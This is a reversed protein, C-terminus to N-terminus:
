LQRRPCMGSCSGTSIPRSTHLADYGKPLALLTNTWYLAASGTCRAWTPSAHQVPDITIKICRGGPQIITSRPSAHNNPTSKTFIYTHKGTWTHIYTHKVLGGCSRRPLTLCPYDLQGSVFASTLGLALQAGCGCGGWVYTTPTTIPLNRTINNM